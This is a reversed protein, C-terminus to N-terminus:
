KPMLELPEMQLLLHLSTLPMSWFHPSSSVFAAPLGDRKSNPFPSQSILPPQWYEKVDPMKQSNFFCLFTQIMSPTQLKARLPLPLVSAVQGEEGGEGHGRSPQIRM